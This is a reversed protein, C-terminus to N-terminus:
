QLDTKKAAQYQSNFRKCKCTILLYESSLFMQRIKKWYFFEIVTCWLCTKFLSELKAEYLTTETCPKIPLIYSLETNYWWMIIFTELIIINCM